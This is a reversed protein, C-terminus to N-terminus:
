KRTKKKSGPAMKTWREWIDAQKPSASAEAQAQRIAERSLCSDLHANFAENETAVKKGCVPCVHMEREASPQRPKSDPKPKRSSTPKRNELEELDHFQTPSISVSASSEGEEVLESVLSPTDSDLLKRKKNPSSSSATDFFQGLRSVSVTQHSVM